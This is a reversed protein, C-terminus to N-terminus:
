CWATVWTQWPSAMFIPMEFEVGLICIAEPLHLSGWNSISFKTSYCWQLLSVDAALYVAMQDAYVYLIMYLYTCLSILNKTHLGMTQRVRSRHEVEAVEIEDRWGDEGPPNGLITGLDDVIEISELLNFWGAVPTGGKVWGPLNSRSRM